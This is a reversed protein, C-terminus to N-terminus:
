KAEDTKKPLFKACDACFVYELIQTIYAWPEYTLRCDCGTCRLNDLQTDTM